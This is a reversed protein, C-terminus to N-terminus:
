IHYQTSLFIHFLDLSPPPSGSKHPKITRCASDAATSKAHETEHPFKTVLYNHINFQNTLQQM